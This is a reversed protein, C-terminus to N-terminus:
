RGSRIGHAAPAIRYGMGALLFSRVSAMPVTTKPKSVQLPSARPLNGLALTRRIMLEPLGFTISLDDIGRGKRVLATFTEWRTVEDPHLRAINEILSAELAAADDGAERIARPM